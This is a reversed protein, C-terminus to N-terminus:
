SLPRRPPEKVLQVLAAPNAPKVLHGDFGALSTQNRDSERGWGTLAIVSMPRGWHANRIRRCVDRGDVDPMGLDLFVMEPRFREAEDLAAAGGYVTRVDCGLESLLLSITDAADANDDVVLVRRPPLGRELQAPESPRMDVFEAIRRAPLRVTFASGHGPGDSTADIQGGHLEVLRRALALGIGLGGSTLDNTSDVQTFLDFVSPLLEPSIGVGHDRVTVAATDGEVDVTLEIATHAPSFKSANNLLNGFVQTLRAPDADLVIDDDLHGLTLTQHKRNLLPLSTEIAAALIDKLSAREPQLTLKGRSLRSIDLLDDLLRAMQAVQREIVDRGQELLPDRLPRTRMLAVSIRVPALPNRLEHALTALFEDKQRDAELLAAEAAKSASIDQAVRVFTPPEDGSSPARSATVTIWLPTGDKRVCRKDFTFSDRTGAVLESTLAREDALDDPYTIDFTTRGQLEDVSYGTMAALTQNVQLFRGQADCLAIGVAANEFMGRFRAESVRLDREATKRETIDRITKSAGIIHGSVDVIPSITLSVDLERGDKATRVTDFHAITEGARLRTLLLDEENRRQPPLLRVISGGVIEEATYGFLREAGANWTTIEGDLTISLIADSSSTVIAALRAAALHTRRQETVDQIVAVFGRPQGDPGIDPVVHSHMWRTGYAYPVELESEVREGNLAAVVHGRVSAYADPGVVDVITRGIVDAPTMGFREAYAANVFTYREDIDCHLLLVPVHDAVFRLQETSARATEQARARELRLAIHRALDTLLDREDDRWAYPTRRMASLAFTWRGDILCPANLMAGVGLVDLALARTEPRGEHVSSAVVPRGAALTDFEEETLFEKIRYTGVISALGPAHRDHRVAAMGTQEDVQVFLCHDLAFYSAIQEGAVELLESESRASSLAAEIAETFLLHDHPRRQDDLDLNFGTM